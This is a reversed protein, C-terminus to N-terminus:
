GSSGSKLSGVAKETKKMLTFERVRFWYISKCFPFQASIAWLPVYPKEGYPVDLWHYGCNHSNRSQLYSSLVCIKTSNQLGQYLMIKEASDKFKLLVASSCPCIVLWLM